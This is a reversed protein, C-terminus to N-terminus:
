QGRRYDAARLLQPQGETMQNINKPLRITVNDGFDQSNLYNIIDNLNSTQIDMAVAEPRLTAAIPQAPPPVSYRLYLSAGIAVLFLAAAALVIPMPVAVHRRWLSAVTVGRRAQLALWSRDMSSQLDFLAAGQLEESLRTYGQVRERCAACTQLHEEIRKEWESDLEEDYFASLLQPDPCM